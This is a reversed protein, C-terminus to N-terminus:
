ESYYCIQAAGLLGADNGHKAAKIPVKGSFSPPLYLQVQQYLRDCFWEKQASIGGGIIIIEPDLLLMSNAIMRGLMKMWHQFLATCIPEEQKVYEIFTHGRIEEVQMRKAAERLIGITSCKVELYDEESQYDSYGIEGSQFHSGLVPKGDIVIAGGIGTGLTICLFNSCGVGEGLWYEGLAAASGDNLINCEIRNDCSSVLEKLNNGELFPLNEVGGLCMGSQDFIGLSSIGVKYIQSNIAKELIEKLPVLFEEITNMEKTLFSSKNEIKGSSSIYAYKVSTGGIDIALIQETKM